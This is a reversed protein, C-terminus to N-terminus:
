TRTPSGRSPGRAARRRPGAPAPGRRLAARPGELPEGVRVYAGPGEWAEAAMAGALGRRAPRARLVKKVTEGKGFETAPPM